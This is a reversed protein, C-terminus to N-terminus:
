SFYRLQGAQCWWQSLLIGVRFSVYASSSEAQDSYLFTNKESSVQLVRQAGCNGKLLVTIGVGGGGEMNTTIERVKLNSILSM